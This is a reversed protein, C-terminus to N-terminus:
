VACRCDGGKEALSRLGEIAEAGGIERLSEIAAQPLKAGSTKNWALEALKSAFPKLKWTGVLRVAAVSAQSGSYRLLKGLADLDGAPRANRLRAAENLATL